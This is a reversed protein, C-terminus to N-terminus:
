FHDFWKNKQQENLMQRATEVDHWFRIKRAAKRTPYDERSSEPFDQGALELLKETLELLENVSTILANADELGKDSIKGADVFYQVKNRYKSLEHEAAKITDRTKVGLVAYLSTFDLM